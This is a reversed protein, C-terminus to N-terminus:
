PANGGKARDTPNPGDPPLIKDTTKKATHKEILLHPRYSQKARRLGRDGLDQERNVYTYESLANQCFWQNILQYAGRIKPNAKEFHVVATDANLREGITFAELKGDVLLVAGFVGLKDYNLFTEKIAWNEDRLSPNEACDMLNCWDEQLRLCRDVLMSTIPRYQCQHAALCQRIDKRKSYYATGKLETLDKVLYVYDWNDRDEEVAYGMKALSDAEAKDLAHLLPIETGKQAAAEAVELASAEGIPPLLSEVNGPDRLVKVLLTKGIRSIKPKDSIRYAYLSTFTFESIQPQMRSFAAVLLPRDVMELDRFLPTGTTCM